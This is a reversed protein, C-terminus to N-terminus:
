MVGYAMEQPVLCALLPKKGSVLTQQPSEIPDLTRPLDIGQRPVVVIEGQRVVQGLRALAFPKVPKEEIGAPKPFLKCRGSGRLGEDGIVLLVAHTLGLVEDAARYPQSGTDERA